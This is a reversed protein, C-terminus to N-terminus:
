KGYRKRRYGGFLATLGFGMLLLTSPEPVATTVYDFEYSTQASGTQQILFTYNGSPLPPTFGQSGAALNTNGMIPLIDVGVLNTAPLSGNQAGTGFHAYGLYPGATLPNGVFNTGAQVGTFGQQDTSSYAKLVVASLQLGGPVALMIWDQNDGASTTRLNGIIANTGLVLTFNNPAAQNGSLDGSVSENWQTVIQAHANTVFATLALMGALKVSNSLLRNAM